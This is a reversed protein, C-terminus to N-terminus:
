ELLLILCGVRPTVTYSTASEFLPPGYLTICQMKLAKTMGSVVSHHDTWWVVDVYV